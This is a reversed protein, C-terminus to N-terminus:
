IWDSRRFARYLGSSFLVILAGIRGLSSSRTSRWPSRRAYPLSRTQPSSCGIESARLQGSETDLKVTYASMFMHSDYRDLKPRMLAMADDSDLRDLVGLLEDIPSESM